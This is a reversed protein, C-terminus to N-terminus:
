WALLPIGYDPFTTFGRNLDRLQKPDIKAAYLLERRHIGGAVLLGKAGADQAGRMDTRYSDGIGLARGRVIGTAKFITEYIKVHPKGHYVVRGGLNEYRQAIAGACIEEVGGRHVMLDPNACLMPLSQKLGLRLVPDFDKAQAKDDEVGTVLLFSAAGVEDVRELDLGDILGADREPMIAYVRRGLRQGLGDPRTKLYKWTEEGSTYVGTYLARDVGMETLKAEVETARRPANSLIEVAKGADRLRALCDLAAPYPKVGDHVCGWLDMLVLDFSDAIERLGTLIRTVPEQQNLIFPDPM